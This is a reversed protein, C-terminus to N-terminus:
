LSICQSESKDMLKKYTKNSHAMWNDRSIKLSHLSGSITGHHDGREMGEM